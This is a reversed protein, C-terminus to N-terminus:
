PATRAAEYCRLGGTESGVIVLGHAVTPSSFSLGERGPNADDNIAVKELLEGTAADIVGLYGDRSVAYVLGEAAAPGALIPSRGSIRASWLVAGSYDTMAVVQGSRVPAVIRGNVAAIPGLVADGLDATWRVEGTKADLALVVGAPQPHSFVYDSNGAGVIVLDDVLTVAGTVPHPSPTRWILRSLGAAALQQDTESRLAVVANGQFGSGIYVTGDLAIAPSSEPDNLAYRWLEAGDSIRVALVFGIDGRPKRDPGEIAGAGAVVMDGLIAPSGEIHLPTPVTWRPQGTEADLCLLACNDNDHLGQGILLWKGDETIAPSSFFPKLVEGNAVNTEWIVRGSALDMCLVTGFWGAPDPTSYTAYVRNGRVTPSSLFMSGPATYAWRLRLGRPAAGGAHGSRHYGQRFVAIADTGAAAVLDSRELALAVQAWDIAAVATQPSRALAAASLLWWGGAGAAACVAVASLWRLPRRRVAAALERPRLLLALASALPALIAPLLAAGANVVIPVVALMDMM